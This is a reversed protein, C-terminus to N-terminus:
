AHLLTVAAAVAVGVAFSSFSAAADITAHEQNGHEDEVCLANGLEIAEIELGNTGPSCTTSGDSEEYVYITGGSGDGNCEVLVFETEAGHVEEACDGSTGTRTDECTACGDQCGFRLEFQNGTCTLQVYSHEDDDHEHIGHDDETCEASAVNHTEELFAADECGSGAPLGADLGAFVKIV